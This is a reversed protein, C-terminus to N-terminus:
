TGEIPDLTHFPATSATDMARGGAQPDLGKEITSSDHCASKWRHDRRMLTM